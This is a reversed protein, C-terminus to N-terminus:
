LDEAPEAAGVKHFTLPVTGTPAAVPRRMTWVSSRHVSWGPSVVGLVVKGNTDGCFRDVDVLLYDHRPPFDEYGAVILCDTTGPSLQEYGLKHHGDMDHDTFGRDVSQDAPDGVLFVSAPVAGIFSANSNYRIYAGGEPVTGQIRQLKVIYGGHPAVGRYYFFVTTVTAGILKERRHTNCAAELLHKLVNGEDGGEFLETCETLKGKWSEYPLWDLRGEIESILSGFGEPTALDLAPSQPLRDEPYLHTFLWLGGLWIAAPGAVTFTIGVLEAKLNASSAFLLALLITASVLTLLVVVRYQAKDRTRIVFSFWFAAVLTALVFAAALVFVAAGISPPLLTTPANAIIM